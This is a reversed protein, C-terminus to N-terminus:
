NVSYGTLPEDDITDDYDHRAKPGESGLMVLRVGRDRAIQRMRARFARVSEGDFAEFYATGVVAERESNMKTPFLKTAEPSNMIMTVLSDSCNLRGARDLLAKSKRPM